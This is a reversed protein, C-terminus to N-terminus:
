GLAAMKEAVAIRSAVLGGVHATKVRADTLDEAFLAAAGRVHEAYWAELNVDPDGAISQSAYDGAAELFGYYIEVGALMRGSQLQARGLADTLEALRRESVLPNAALEIIAETYLEAARDFRGKDMHIDALAIELRMDREAEAGDRKAHLKIAREGHGVARGPAGAEVLDYFRAEAVDASVHLAIFASSIFLLALAVFAATLDAIATKAM